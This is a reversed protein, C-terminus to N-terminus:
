ARGAARELADAALLNLASGAKFFEIQRDNFTHRVPIREKEGNEDHVIEVELDRGPTFSSLGYICLTSTSTIKDYDMALFHAPPADPKAVSPVTDYGGTLRNKVCNVKDNEANVAGILLNKCKGKVKILTEVPQVDEGGWPEFPVILQIRSSSPDVELTVDAGDDKPPQYYELSRHYGREPWVDRNPQGKQVDKREWQGVCAGCANALLTGAADTTFVDLIGDRDLTSRIEESGPAVLLPIRPSLGASSAQKILSASRTFDEYSSNTCSGILAASLSVPWLPNRDVMASLTSISHSLDPTFPGNVHPELDSLDEAGMNGITAMGTASLTGVGDGYYEIVHDTGGKVTLISALKLIVDKASTWGGLKGKLHVGIIKPHKIEYGAGAMVDVSEMGGCGIALMGLGAANPTRSDTGIMFGGPYAYQEFIIQHLIGAGPKWFAIGYKDCASQLFAYVEENVQKAHELDAIAGRRATVLHDSHVSTPIRVRPLSTSIFQLLALQANADHLAVRKPLLALDSSGRELAQEPDALHAYLIKESLTLPRRLRERVARAKRELDAYAETEGNTELPAIRFRNFLPSSRTSSSVTALHRHVVNGAGLPSTRLICRHLRPSLM